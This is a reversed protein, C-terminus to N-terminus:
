SLCKHGFETEHPAAKGRRNIQTHPEFLSVIKTEAPVNEGQLVRRVAQEIAREVLPTFDAFQRV